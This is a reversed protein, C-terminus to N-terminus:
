GASEHVGNTYGVQQQSCMCACPVLSWFACANGCQVRAPLRNKVNVALLGASQVRSPYGKVFATFTNREKLGLSDPYSNYTPIVILSQVYLLAYWLDPNEDWLFQVACIPKTAM